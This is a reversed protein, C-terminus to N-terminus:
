KSKKNKSIKDQSAYGLTQTTGGGLVATVAAAGVRTGGRSRVTDYGISGTAGGLIVKAVQKGTSQKNSYESRLRASDSIKTKTSGAKRQKHKVGQTYVLGLTANQLSDARSLGRSRSTNYAMAGVPGMLAVKSAQKKRSQKANYARRTNTVSQSYKDGHSALRYKRQNGNGGAYKAQTEANRVGWHMGKVGHHSLYAESGDHFTIIYDM